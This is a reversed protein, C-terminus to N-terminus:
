ASCIAPNGPMGLSPGPHIPALGPVTRATARGQREVGPRLGSDAKRRISLTNGGLLRIRCQPTGNNASLKMYRIPQKLPKPGTAVPYESVGRPCPGRSPILAHGSEAAAGSLGRYTAGINAHRGRETSRKWSLNWIRCRRVDDVCLPCSDQYPARAPAPELRSM